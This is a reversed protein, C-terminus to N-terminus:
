AYSDRAAIQTMLEHLLLKEVPAIRKQSPFQRTDPVVDGARWAEFSQRMAAAVDWDELEGVTTVSKTGHSVERFAQYRSVVIKARTSRSTALTGSSEGCSPYRLNFILDCSAMLSEFDDHEPYDIFEVNNLLQFASAVEVPNYNTDEPKRGVIVLRIRARDQLSMADLVHSFARLIATVRKPWTVWGFIGMTFTDPARREAPPDLLEEKEPHACVRVKPFATLPGDNELLLRTAAFLSHTWVEDVAELVPDISQTCFEFIDPMEGALRSDVMKGASQGYQSRMSARVEAIDLRHPGHATMYRHLMFMSPDHLVAILRGRGFSARSGRVAKQVFAHYNNNALFLIRTTGEPPLRTADDADIVRFGSVSEPLVMGDQLSQRDSVIVVDRSDVGFSVLRDLLTQLYSATGTQMPPVASYLELLAPTMRQM